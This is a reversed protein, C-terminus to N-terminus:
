SVLITFSPQEILGVINVECRGRLEGQIHM